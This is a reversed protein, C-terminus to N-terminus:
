RQQFAAYITTLTPPLIVWPKAVHVVESPAMGVWPSSMGDGIHHHGTAPTLDRHHDSPHALHDHVHSNSPGFHEVTPGALDNAAHEIGMLHKIQDAVVLAAQLTLAFTMAVCLMAIARQLRSLKRGVM